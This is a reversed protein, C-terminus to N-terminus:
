AHLNSPTTNSESRKGSKQTDFVTMGTGHSSAGIEEGGIFGHGGMSRGDSEVTKEAYKFTCGPVV